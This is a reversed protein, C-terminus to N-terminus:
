AMSTRRWGIMLVHWIKLTYTPDGVARTRSTWLFAAEEAHQSVSPRLRCRWLTLQDTGFWGEHPEFWVRPQCDANGRLVIKGDASLTVSAKGCRLVLGGKASVVLREGDADVEVHGAPQATSQQGANRVCGVIIPRASDGHEFMLVADRGIHPGYLDVTSRAAVAVTGHQGSYTVLPTAGNDTFGVLKGIVVGQISQSQPLLRDGIEADLLKDFDESLVREVVGVVAAASKRDDM